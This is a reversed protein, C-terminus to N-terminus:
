GEMMVADLFWLNDQVHWSLQYVSGESEVSYYCVRTGADRDEWSAALREVRFTHANRKFLLPQAKGGEFDARVKIPEHIHEIHVARQSRPSVPRQFLGASLM